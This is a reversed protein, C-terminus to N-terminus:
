KIRMIWVVEYYSPLTSTQQVGTARFKNGGNYNPDIDGAGDLGHNHTESGGSTGSTPSGRLFRKTQSGAGNLNPIIKGYLPSNTDSLTQGNCEVWGAPLNTSVGPLNKAWATIAGVPPRTADMDTFAAVLNNTRQGGFAVGVTLEGNTMGGSLGPGVSVSTINDHANRWQTGDWKPIEGPAATTGLDRLADDDARLLIPNLVLVILIIALAQM